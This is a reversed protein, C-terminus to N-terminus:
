IAHGTIIIPWIEIGISKWTNTGDRHDISCACDGTVDIGIRAIRRDIRVSCSIDAQRRKIRAQCVAPPKGASGSAVSLSRLPDVVEVEAQLFLEPQPFPTRELETRFEEIDEIM